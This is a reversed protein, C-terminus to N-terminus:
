HNITTLPQLNLQQQQSQDKMQQQSNMEENISNNNNNSSSSINLIPIRRFNMASILELM